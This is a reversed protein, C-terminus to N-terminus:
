KVFYIDKSDQVVKYSPWKYSVVANTKDDLSHAYPSDKWVLSGTSSDTVAITKDTGSEDSSEVEKSEVLTINVPSLRERGLSDYSSSDSGYFADRITDTSCGAFCALSAIITFLFGFGKTVLEMVRRTTAKFNNGMKEDKGQSPKIKTKTYQKFRGFNIQRVRDLIINNHLIYLTVYSRIILCVFGRLILNNIKYFVSSLCFLLLQSLKKFSSLKFPCIKSSNTVLKM